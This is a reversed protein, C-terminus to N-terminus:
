KRTFRGNYKLDQGEVEFFYIGSKLQDTKLSITQRGAESVSFEEDLQLTGKTDFVRVQVTKTSNPEIELNLIGDVPNPYFKNEFSNNLQSAGVTAAVSVRSEITLDGVTAVVISKGVVSGVFVVSSNTNEILYGGGERITWTVNYTGTLLKNQQDYFLLEFKASDNQNMKVSKTNIGLKTLVPEYVPQTFKMSDISKAGYAYVTYVNKGVTSVKISGNLDVKKGDFFASDANITTWSLTVSDGNAVVRSATTIGTVFTYGTEVQHVLGTEVFKNFVMKGMSMAGRANPHVYDPFLSGSDRFATNFDVVPINELKSISDVIPIVGNSIISDNILWVATLDGTKYCPPPFAVMFKVRPNRVKMTDIMAKYDAFFQDPGCVDWNQPKTDNTGMMIYVIDPAFNWMQGFQAENWIPFDGKKLITRGSVAFNSVVCTDGYVQQLMQSVRGPYCEVTPNTLNTGITISNGTFAIRVHYDGQAPNIGQSFVGTSFLLSLLLIFINRKIKM